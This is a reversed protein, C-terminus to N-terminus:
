HMAYEKWGKKASELAEACEKWGKKANELAQVCEGLRKEIKWHKRVDEMRYPNRGIGRCVKKWQVRTEELAATSQALKDEVNKLEANKESVM